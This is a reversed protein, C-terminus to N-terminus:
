GKIVVGRNMVFEVHSLSEFTEDIEGKVAIINAQKGVAISGVKDDIKCVKAANITAADIVDAVSLGAQHLLQLEKVPMVASGPRTEMRMTDTGVAVLGGKRFFRAVNDICIKEQEDKSVKPEPMPPMKMEEGNPGKPKFMKMEDESPPPPNVTCLTPVVAVGQKVMRDILEDPIRDVPMHAFEPIGADLLPEVFESDLM